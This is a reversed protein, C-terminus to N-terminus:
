IDPGSCTGRASPRFSTKWCPKKYEGWIAEAKNLPEHKGSSEISKMVVVFRRDIDNTLQKVSEVKKNALGTDTETMFSQVENSIQYLDSKLSAINELADQNQRITKYAPGGIRVENMLFLCNATVILMGAFAAVSLLVMKTRLAMSNGGPPSSTRQL